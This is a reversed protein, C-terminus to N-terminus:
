SEAYRRWVYKWKKHRCTRCNLSGRFIYLHHFSVSYSNLYNLQLQRRASTIYWSSTCPHPHLAENIRLKRCISTLPHCISWHKTSLPFANPISQILPRTPGVLPKSETAFTFARWILDRGNGKVDKGIMRPCIAQADSFVSYISSYIFEIKPVPLQMLIPFILYLVDYYTIKM